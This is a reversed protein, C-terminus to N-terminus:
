LTPYLLLRFLRTRYQRPAIATSFRIEGSCQERYSWSCSRDFMVNKKPQLFFLRLLLFLPLSLIRPNKAASLIVL